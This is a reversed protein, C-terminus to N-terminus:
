RATTNLTRRKVLRHKAYAGLGAVCYGVREGVSVGSKEGAAEVVGAAELGLVAALAPTYVPETISM